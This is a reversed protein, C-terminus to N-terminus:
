CGELARGAAEEFVVRRDRPSAQLMSDVKGQEIVGYAHAGIGSSALLNARNM